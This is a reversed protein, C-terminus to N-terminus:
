LSTVNCTAVKGNSTKATITVPETTAKIGVVKGDSDVSVYDSDSSEWTIVTSDTTNTPNITASLTKNGGKELKLTTDSLSISNIHTEVNVDVTFEQGFASVTITTEGNGVATIKGNDDM